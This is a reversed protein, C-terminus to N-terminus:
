YPFQPLEWGPHYIQHSGLILDLGLGMKEVPQIPMKTWILIAEPSPHHASSYLSSDKRHGALAEMIQGQYSESTVEKQAVEREAVSIM